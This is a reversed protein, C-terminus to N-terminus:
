VNELEVGGLTTLLLKDSLLKKVAPLMQWKDFSFTYREVKTDGDKIPSYFGSKAKNFFEYKVKQFDNRRLFKPIIIFGNKRLMTTLDTSPWSQLMRRCSYAASSLLVRFIQAGAYNLFHNEIIKKNTFLEKIPLLFHKQSSHM